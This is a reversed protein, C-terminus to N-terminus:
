GSTALRTRSAARGGVTRSTPSPSSSGRGAAVAREAVADPDPVELSLRVPTGGLALPGPNGHEPTESTIGVEAPGVAVAAYVAGDPMTEVYVETAGFAERYFAIARLPDSVSLVPSIAIQVDTM